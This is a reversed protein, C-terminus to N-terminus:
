SRAVRTLANELQAYSGVKLDALDLSGDGGNMLSIDAVPLNDICGQSIDYDQPV